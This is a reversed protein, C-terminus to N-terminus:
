KLNKGTEKYIKYSRELNCMNKDCEQQLRYITLPFCSCGRGKSMFLCNGCYRTSSMYEIKERKGKLSSGGYTRIKTM